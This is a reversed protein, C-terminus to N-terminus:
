LRQSNFPGAMWGVNPRVCSLQTQGEGATAGVGHPVPPPVHGEGVKVFSQARPWRSYFFQLCYVSWVTSVIVFTSVLVVLQVKLALFHLPVVVFLKGASQAPDTGGSKSQVPATGGWKWIRKPAVARLPHAGESYSRPKHMFRRRTRRICVPGTASVGFKSSELTGNNV